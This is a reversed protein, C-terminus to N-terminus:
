RVSVAYEASRAAPGAPEWPRRYELRLRAQGPQVARFRLHQVTAGGPMAAATDDAAAAPLAALQPHGDEVVQWRYGTGANGELAVDLVQGVRLVQLAGARAQVTAPADAPPAPVRCAALGLLLTVAPLGRIM